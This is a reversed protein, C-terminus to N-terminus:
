QERINELGKDELFSYKCWLRSQTEIFRDLFNFWEQEQDVIKCVYDTHLVRSRLHKSFFQAGMVHELCPMLIGYIWGLSSSCDHAHLLGQANMQSSLDTLMQLNSCSIYDSNFLIWPCGFNVHLIHITQTKVDHHLPVIGHCSWYFPM